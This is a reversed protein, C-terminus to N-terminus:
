RNRLAAAFVAGILLAGLAPYVPLPSKAPTTPHAAPSTGLNPPILTNDLAYAAAFASRAEEIRGLHRLADGKNSYAIANAIPTNEKLALAKDATVIAEDYRGLQVLIGAKNALALPFSENMALAKENAALADDYKGETALDVAKNYWYWPNDTSMTTTTDAALSPVALFLSLILLIFMSTKM